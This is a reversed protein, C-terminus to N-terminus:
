AIVGGSQNFTGTVSGSGSNLLIRAYRPAATYATQKSATAAVVASDACSLWAVSEAAVANTPDNPDDLTQQLTYNATGAVTLQVSVTSLGWDDLRVWPSAAVGNTGISVTGASAGSSTVGTLTYYDLVTSAAAGSAGTVTESISNGSRNTGAVAFTIGTDNGSSTFIIRRQADLRAVGGTVTSGNLTVAGAGAISSATRINTASGATLPGVSTVIPRM